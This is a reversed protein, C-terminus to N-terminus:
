ETPYYTVPDWTNKSPVYEYIIKANKLITPDKIPVFNGNSDRINSGNDDKARVWREGFGSSNNTNVVVAHRNPEGNADYNPVNNEKISNNLESRGRGLAEAELEPTLFNSAKGTPAGTAGSPKIGTEIRTEQQVPTVQYGHEDHGHGKNAKNPNVPELPQDANSVTNKARDTSDLKSNEVESRDTYNTPPQNYGNNQNLSSPKERTYGGGPLNYYTTGNIVTTNPTSNVGGSTSNNGNSTRSSSRPIGLSEFIANNKATLADAKSEHATQDSDWQGQRAKSDAESKAIYAETDARGKTVEAEYAKRKAAQEINFQDLSNPSNANYESLDAYNINDFYNDNGITNINQSNPRNNSSTNSTNAGKGANYDTNGNPKRNPNRSPPIIEIDLSKGIGKKVIVAGGASVIAAVAEFSLETTAKGSKYFDDDSNGVFSAGVIDAGKDYYEKPIGKLAKLIEAAVAGPNEKAAEYLAQMDDPISVIGEGIDKLAKEQGRLFAKEQSADIKEYAQRASPSFYNLAYKVDQIYSTKYDFSEPDKDIATILTKDNTDLLQKNEAQTVADRGDGLAPKYSDIKDQNSDISISVNLDAAIGALNAM